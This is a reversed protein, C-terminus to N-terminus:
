INAFRILHQCRDATLLFEWKTFGSLLTEANNSLFANGVVFSEKPLIHLDLVSVAITLFV